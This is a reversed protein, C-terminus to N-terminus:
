AASIHPTQSRIMEYEETMMRSLRQHMVKVQDMDWDFSAIDDSLRLFPVAFADRTSQYYSLADPKDSVVANALLEADRLADTMGHATLPDKFSGADGVLAWGNGFSQRIHGPTAAFPHLKGELTGGAILSSFGRDTERLMEDFLNDLGNRRLSDYRNPRMGVFVCTLGDNTPIAGAANDKGFYWHTGDLSVGRLYGYVFAAPRHGAYRVVANVSRAVGSRTGDAGILLDCRVQQTVGEGNTVMVGRVRGDEDKIISRVVTNHAVHAGAEWAADCLIADVTTRRAAYLADVGDRAKIPVKITEDEYHFTTSRIAPAGSEIIRDLVGWRALQLVGPRMVAHSSTTDQGYPSKDVVLVKLGNRALLMATSAGAVRAGVIVVDYSSNLRTENNM